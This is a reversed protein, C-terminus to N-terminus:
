QAPQIRGGQIVKMARGRALAEPSTATKAANIAVTKPMLCGRSLVSNRARAAFVRQWWPKDPSVAALAFRAVQQSSNMHGVIGSLWDGELRAGAELILFWKDKASKIVESFNDPECHEAGSLDCIRDIEDRASDTNSFVLVGSVVGEMAGEVLPVLSRSLAEGDDSTQLIVTIM